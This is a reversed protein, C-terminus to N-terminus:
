NMNQGYSTVTLLLSFSIVDNYLTALHQASRSHHIDQFPFSPFQYLLYRLVISACIQTSEFRAM